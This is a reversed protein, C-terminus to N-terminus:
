AERALFDGNLQLSLQATQAQRWRFYGLMQIARCPLSQCPKILVLLTKDDSLKNDIAFGDPRPRERCPRRIHIVILDFLYDILIRDVLNAAELGAPSGFLIDSAGSPLALSSLGFVAPAM